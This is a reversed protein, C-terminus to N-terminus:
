SCVSFKVSALLLYFKDLFYFFSFKFNRLTELRLLLGFFKQIVSKKNKNISNLISLQLLKEPLPLYTQTKINYRTFQCVDATEGCRTATEVCCSVVTHLADM